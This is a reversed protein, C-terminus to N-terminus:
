HDSSYWTSNVKSDKWGQERSVEQHLLNFHAFRILQSGAEGWSMSNINMEASVEYPIHPQTLRKMEQSFLSKLSSNITKGEFHCLPLGETGMIMFPSGRRGWSWTHKTKSICQRPYGGRNGHRLVSLCMTMQRLEVPHMRPLGHLHPIHYLRTELNISAGSYSALTMGLFLYATVHGELKIFRLYTIGVQWNKLSLIRFIYMVAGLFILIAPAHSAGVGRDLLISGVEGNCGKSFLKSPVSLLQGGRWKHVSLFCFSKTGQLRTSM